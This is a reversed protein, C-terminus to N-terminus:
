RGAGTTIDTLSVTGVLGITDNVVRRLKQKCGLYWEATQISVHGLLFPIISNSALPPVVPGV